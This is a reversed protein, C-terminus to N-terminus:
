RQQYAGATSFREYDQWGRGSLNQMEAATKRAACFEIDFGKQRASLAPAAIQNTSEDTPWSEDCTRACILLGTRM